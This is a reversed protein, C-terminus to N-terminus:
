TVDILSEPEPRAIERWGLPPKRKAMSPRPTRPMGSARKPWAAAAVVTAAADTMPAEHHEIARGREGRQERRARHGEDAGGLIGRSDTSTRQAVQAVAAELARDI